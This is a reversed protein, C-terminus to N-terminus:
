SRLAQKVDGILDEVNEIGVSFRFLRPTTYAFQSLAGGFNAGFDWHTGQVPATTFPNFPKDGFEHGDVTATVPLCRDPQMGAYGAAIVDEVAFVVPAAADLVSAGPRWSRYRRHALGGGGSVVGVRAAEIVM